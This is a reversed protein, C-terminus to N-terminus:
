TDLESRRTLYILLHPFSFNFTLSPVESACHSSKCLNLFGTPQLPSVIEM